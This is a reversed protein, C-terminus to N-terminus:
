IPSARRRRGDTRERFQRERRKRSSSQGPKGGDDQVTGDFNDADEFYTEIEAPVGGDSSDVGGDSSGDSGSGGDAGGDGGCGALAGALGITIPADTSPWKSRVERTTTATPTLM